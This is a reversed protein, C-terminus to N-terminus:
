IVATHRWNSLHLQFFAPHVGVVSAYPRLENSHIQWVAASVANKFSSEEMQSHNSVTLNTELKEGSHIRDSGAM